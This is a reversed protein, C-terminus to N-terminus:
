AKVVAVILTGGTIAELKFLNDHLWDQVEPYTSYISIPSLTATISQEYMADIKREFIAKQRAVEEEYVKRNVEAAKKIIQEGTYMILGGPTGPGM